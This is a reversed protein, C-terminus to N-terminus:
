TKRNEFHLLPIAATIVNKEKFQCSRPRKKILEGFVAAKGSYFALSAISWWIIHICLCMGNFM